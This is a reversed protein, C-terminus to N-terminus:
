LVSGNQLQSSRLEYILWSIFLGLWPGDHNEENGRPVHHSLVTFCAVVVEV